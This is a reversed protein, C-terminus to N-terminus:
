ASRARILSLLPNMVHPGAAVINGSQMYDQGGSIDTVLGGAERIMLVGAAMDWPSLGYEFFGDLRGAAIYALDLAASGSRRIGSCRPLLARFSRMWPDLRELDRIPFGTGILADDLTRLTTCRVRRNDVQVGQGRSSTFLENAMPHYIVGHELVDRRRIAISVAFEPYGHLFNTTGDLPDIIWVYENNAGREGSEEAIIGHDPYTKEVFAIIEDEAMRDVESVFDHRGKREVEIRDLQDSHKLIINGAIRACRVATTLLPHM